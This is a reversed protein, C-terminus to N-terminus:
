EEEVTSSGSTDVTRLTPNGVYSLHSAGSAEADLTGSANVTASSAGSVTAQVDVCAFSELEASSAGSVDLILDGCSGTLSITSAGSADMTTDSAQIDGSISSAGSAEMQLEGASAFGTVTVESAGSAELSALAPLTVEAELTGRRISRVRNPDIGIELTHGVKSVRVYERLNDDVRIVVSFADAQRLTAEFAYSIVVRDFDAVEEQFTVINGSGSIGGTMPMSITCALLMAVLLFAALALPRSM